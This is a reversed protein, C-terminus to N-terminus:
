SVAARILRAPELRQASHRPQWSLRGRSGRLKHGARKKSQWLLARRLLKKAQAECNKRCNSRVVLMSPRLRIAMILGWLQIESCDRAPM